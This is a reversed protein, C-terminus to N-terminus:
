RCLILHRLLDYVFAGIVSAVIPTAIAVVLASGPHDHIFDQLRYFRAKRLKKLKKEIYKYYGYFSDDDLTKTIEEKCDDCIKPKGCSKSLLKIKENKSTDFICNRFEDNWIRKKCVYRLVDRYIAILLFNIVSINAEAIIKKTGYLSLYFLSQQENLSGGYNTKTRYDTLLIYIGTQGDKIQQNFKEVMAGDELCVDNEGDLGFEAIEINEEEFVVNFIRSNHDKLESKLFYFDSSGMNIIHVKTPAYDSVKYFKRKRSKKTGM